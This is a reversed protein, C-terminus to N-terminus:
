WTPTVNASTNIDNMNGVGLQGYTDVGCAYLTGNTKRLIVHNEGATVEVWDNATGVQTPVSLSPISTSQCLAANGNNGFSWLTGDSKLAFSQQWYRGTAVAVWNTASGVQTPTTRQTTDGQGLQGFNNLGWSYLKGDAIGLSHEHGAAIATWNKTNDVLTPVLKNGSNGLGLRGNGDYGWSYLDGNTKIALTHGARGSVLLWDTDDNVKTPTTVGFPSVSTTYGLGLQGSPNYGWAYLKDDDKLAFGGLEGGFLKTWSGAIQVPSSKNTETGDGLSGYSANGWAFMENNSNRAFATAYGTALEVWNTNTGIQQPSSKNTFDGLGLQGSTSAGWSWLTGNARLAITSIFQAHGSVWDTATGLISIPTERWAFAAQENMIASGTVLSGGDAMHLFTANAAPILEDITSGLFVPATRNVFDALGLQGYQNSGWVYWGDAKQAASHGLGAVVNLWGSGAGIDTPTLVNTTSSNGIQGSGGQGCARVTGDQMLFIIHQLGTAIKAYNSIPIAYPTANAQTPPTIEGNCLQGSDNRGFSLVTGDSRVVYSHLYGAHVQTYLNADIAIPTNATGSRGLQGFANYGFTYLTGDSHIALSHHSGASIKQWAGVIATVQQPTNYNTGNGQGLQGQAGLGWAYLDGNTKIALTHYIGPAVASWDSDTGVRTPHLRNNNDGLGLQGFQNAGWVYLGGEVIAAAHNGIGTYFTADKNSLAVLSITNSGICNGKIGVQPIAIRWYLSTAVPSATVQFPVVLNAQVPIETLPKTAVDDYAATGSLSYRQKSGELMGLDCDMDGGSVFVDARTNGRQTLPFDVPSSSIGGLSLTGYDIGDPINLALLANVETTITSSATGQGEDVVSITGTWNDSAYRSGVDTADTHYAIPTPCNYLLEVESATDYSVDCQTIHYCSNMDALCTDTKSTRYFLASISSSAVSTKGNLDTITGTLHVIRDLGVVPTIGASAINDVGFATTAIRISDITPPENTIEVTTAVDAAGTYSLVIGVILLFAASILTGVIKTHLTM